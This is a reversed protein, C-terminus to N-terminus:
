EEGFTIHIDGKINADIEQKIIENGTYRYIMKVADARVKPSEDSLLRILEQTAPTLQKELLEKWTEKHQQSAKVFYATYAQESKDGYTDHCYEIWEKHGFTKDNNFRLDYCTKIRKDTESKPLKDGAM